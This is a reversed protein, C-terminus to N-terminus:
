SSFGGQTQSDQILQDLFMWGVADLDFNNGMDLGVDYSPVIDSASDDNNALSQGAKLEVSEETGIHNVNPDQEGTRCKPVARQSSRLIAIFTPEPKGSAVYLARKSELMEEHNCYVQEIKCWTNDIEARSLLNCRKWPMTLIFILADWTGWLFLPKVYWRYKKLGAHAYAAMVTDIIKQALQFVETQEADIANRSRIKPLRVRPRMATIGSRALGITLFHLPDFIYSRSLCFFMEAAGRQEEPMETMGPWIQDDNINLPRRTDWADPMISIGTGAMQGANGDLPLRQNFLRRRMQVDFPPLGLKAGDKHLGKRQGTRVAVGTLIRFTHSDYVYRCPMFFLGLAQLVSIEITRPFSANILAQRTALHYQQTLMTRPQIGFLLCEEANSAIDPERSATEVMKATSPIHLIKCLPEVNGIHTEWLAMAKEHTPHYRLLGRQSGIFAGTLPDPTSEGYMDFLVLDQDEAVEEDEEVHSVRSQQRHSLRSRGQGALLKGARSTEPENWNLSITEQATAQGESNNDLLSLRSEKPALSALGAPRRRCTPTPFVKM